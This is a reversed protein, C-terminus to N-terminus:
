NIAKLKQKAKEVTDKSESNEIISKLTAKAMFEDNKALYNDAILLFAKEYWYTFDSFDAALDQLVKISTDFDKQAFHM